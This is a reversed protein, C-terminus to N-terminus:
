IHWDLKSRKSRTCIWEFSKCQIENFVTLISTSNKGFVKKNHNKWILYGSIWKVAQWIVGNNSSVPLPCSDKFIEEVSFISVANLNWWEFVKLWIDSAFKCFVLAHDVTELDDDCIPCRVSDLDISKKDLEVRTPIRKRISRWAFIEIKKPVYKNRVTELDQLSSNLLKEHIRKSMESTNFTGSCDWHWKWSDIGSNAFQVTQLSNQLQMLEDLSRGSVTRTWQWNFYIGEIGKRVRDGVRADKFVELQFLRPFLDKFRHNGIWLDKWFLTDLGNGIERTFSLNFSLDFKSLYSDVGIIYRWISGSCINSSTGLGGERGYISKIIKVWFADKGVHFRWWWKSLLALNKARLSGINLGGAGYPVLIDDWKVWAM